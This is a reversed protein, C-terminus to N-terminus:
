FPYIGPGKGSWNLIICRDNFRKRFVSFEKSLQSNKCKINQSFIVGILSNRVDLFEVEGMSIIRFENEQNFDSHKQFFKSRIRKKFSDVDEEIVCSILDSEIEDFELYKVEESFLIKDRNTNLMRDRSFVLCIGCFNQGYQNWMRPKLFGLEQVSENRSQCFCVQKVSNLQNILDGKEDDESYLKSEFKESLIDSYSITMSKLNVFEIPDNSQTRPSLKLKNSSLIKKGNEFSTYHFLNKEDLFETPIDKLPHVLYKVYKM